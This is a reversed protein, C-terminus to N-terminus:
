LVAHSCKWYLLKEAAATKVGGHSEASKVRLTLMCAHSPAPLRWIECGVSCRPPVKKENSILNVRRAPARKFKGSIQKWPFVNFFEFFLFFLASFFLKWCQKVLLAGTFVLLTSAFPVFVSEFMRLMIALLLSIAFMFSRFPFDKFLTLFPSFFSFRFRTEYVSEWLRFTGWLFLSASVRFFFCLM